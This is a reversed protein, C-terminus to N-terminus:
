PEYLTVLNSTIQIRSHSFFHMQSYMAFISVASAILLYNQFCAFDYCYEMQWNILKRISPQTRLKNAHPQKSLIAPYFKKWKSANQIM